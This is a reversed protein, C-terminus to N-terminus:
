PEGGTLSRIEALGARLAAQYIWLDGSYALMRFGKEHLMKADAVSMAMFAAAKGHAEAAQVVRELAATFQPHDFQGLIGLSSTLDTQGIWLVDIGEVAVIEDVNELGAATEIQAILLVNENAEEAKEKAPGSRYGDHAIGFAAGRRGIPPYNAFAVLDRAQEASEVMPVMIGGAGMDLVRAVFHYETAPVRVIPLFGGEPVTAMLMKVSEISWGTHEMDFVAFSAGAECMIRAMGPTNFEFVM